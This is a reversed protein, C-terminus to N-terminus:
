FSSASSFNFERVRLGPVVAGGGFTRSQLVQDRSLAEINRFFDFLSVTWRLNHVPEALKGNRIRFVGDRTMGTITLTMPDVVNTYHFHTVYLGDSTGAILEDMSQQGPELVLNEPWPGSGNPRAQGHGTSTEGAERATGLDFVPQVFVGREVLSVPRRAVGELDFPRGNLLPHSWDDRLSVNEGFLQQGRKGSLASTGDLFARAGFGMWALFQVMDTVAAPPLVVTWRGADIPVPKQARACISAAERTVADVNLQNVATHQEEAWGSGDPTQMTVSFVATSSHSHCYLGASNAMALEAQATSFIGSSEFGRERALEFTGGLAAAKQEPTHNLTGEDTNEHTPTECSSRLIQLDKCPSGARAADLATRQLRQLSDGDFHNCSARGLRDGDQVVLRLVGDERALNQQISNNAFRSLRRADSWFLAEAPMGAPLGSLCADLLKQVNLHASM